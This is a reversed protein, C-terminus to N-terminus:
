KDPALRRLEPLVQAFDRGLAGYTYGIEAGKMLIEKTGMGALPDQHHYCDCEPGCAWTFEGECTCEPETM